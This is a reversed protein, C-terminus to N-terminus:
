VAFLQQSNTALKNDAVIQFWEKCNNAVLFMAAQLSFIQIPLNGDM